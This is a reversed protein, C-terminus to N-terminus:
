SESCESERVAGYAINGVISLSKKEKETDKFKDYLSCICSLFYVCCFCSVSVVMMLIMYDIGNLTLPPVHKKKFEKMKKKMELTKESVKTNTTKNEKKPETAIAELVCFAAFTAILTFFITYLIIFPILLASKRKKTGIILLVSAIFHFMWLLLGVIIM